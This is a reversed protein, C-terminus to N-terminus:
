VFLKQEPVNLDVIWLVTHHQAPLYLRRLLAKEGMDLAACDGAASTRLVGMVEVVRQM